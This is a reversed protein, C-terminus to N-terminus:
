DGIEVYNTQQQGNMGTQYLLKYNGDVIIGLCSSGSIGSVNWELGAESHIEPGPYAIIGKGGPEDRMRNVDGCGYYM